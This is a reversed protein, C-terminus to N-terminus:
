IQTRVQEPRPGRPLTYSKSPDSSQKTREIHSIKSAETSDPSNQYYCIFLLVYWLCKVRTGLFSYFGYFRHSSNGHVAFGQTGFMKYGRDRRPSFFYMFTQLTVLWRAVSTSAWCSLPQILPTNQTGHNRATFLKKLTNLLWENM